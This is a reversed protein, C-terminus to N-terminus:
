VSSIRDASNISSVQFNHSYYCGLTLTECLRCCRGLALTEYPSWRCGLALTECPRCRCGLTLTAHAIQLHAPRLLCLTYHSPSSWRRYHHLARVVTTRTRAAATWHSPAGTCQPSRGPRNTVSKLHHLKQPRSKFFYFFSQWSRFNTTGLIEVLQKLHCFVPLKSNFIQHYLNWNTSFAFQSNALKTVSCM